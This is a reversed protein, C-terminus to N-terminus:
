SRKRYVKNIKEKTILKFLFLTSTVFISFALILFSILVKGMGNPMDWKLDNMDQWSFLGGFSGAAASVICTLIVTAISLAGIIGIWAILSISLIRDCTKLDFKRKGDLALETQMETIKEEPEEIDEESDFHDADLKLSRFYGIKNLKEIDQYLLGFKFAGPKSIRNDWSTVHQRTIGLRFATDIQVSENKRRTDFIQNGLYEGYKM